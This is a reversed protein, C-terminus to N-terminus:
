PLGGPLGAFPPLVGAPPGYQASAPLVPPLAYAAPDSFIAQRAARREAFSPAAIRGTLAAHALNAEERATALAGRLPATAAAGVARLPATAADGVARLPAAAAGGVARAAGVAPGLTVDSAVRAFSRATSALEGLLGSRAAASARAQPPPPVPHPLSAASAHADTSPGAPARPAVPQRPPDSAGRTHPRQLTNLPCSM